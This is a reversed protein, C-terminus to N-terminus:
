VFFRERFSVVLDLNVHARLLFWFCSLAGRHPQSLNASRNMQRRRAKLKGYKAPKMDRSARAGYRYQEGPDRLM